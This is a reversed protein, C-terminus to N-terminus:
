EKGEEGEPKMLETKLVQTKQYAIEEREIGLDKLYEDQAEPSLSEFHKKEAEPIINHLEYAVEEDVLDKLQSLVEKQKGEPLDDFGMNGLFEKMDTEFDPYRM